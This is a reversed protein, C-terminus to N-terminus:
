GPAFYHLPAMEEFRELADCRSCHCYIIPGLPSRVEFRVGGCLCAGTVM